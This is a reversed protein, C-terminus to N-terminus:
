HTLSVNVSGAGVGAPVPVSSGAYNANVVLNPSGTMKISKAVVVTWASQDAIRNGAGTIQLTAAPIYITGLLQRASDSSIEFIGLNQRTTAVVFGALAGSKRGGLTISAKDAFVFRSTADFVLVVDDGQLSSSDQTNLAGNVFYHDGPALKLIASNTVTFKGCHVGPALTQAGVAYVMDVPKCNVSILNSPTAVKAGGKNSTTGTTVQTITQPPSLSLNIFPDEIVPAGTQAMPSIRGSAVGATQIVGAHLWATNTVVIDANAHVMCNPATIQANNKLDLRDGASEGATLVCLPSQGMASATAETHIRWGGPPLLNVFFSDRRGDIVVTVGKGGSIPTATVTYAFRGALSALQIDASAKARAGVGNSDAMTLQRAAALATADAVDQAKSRDGRVAALDIAGAILVVLVPVALAFMTATGARRDAAFRRLVFPARLRRAM